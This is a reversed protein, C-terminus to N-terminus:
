RFINIELFRFSENRKIKSIPHVKCEHIEKVYKLRVEFGLFDATPASFLTKEYDFVIFRIHFQTAHESVM